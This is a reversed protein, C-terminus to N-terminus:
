VWKIRSEDYPWEGVDRPSSWDGESTHQEYHYLVRNVHEYTEVLELMEAAWTQDGYYDNPYSLQTFLRRRIPCKATVGRRVGEWSPTFGDYLFSEQFTGDLTYLIRYGHFDFRLRPTLTDAFDLTVTDDDDLLCVWEGTAHQAMWDAKDGQLGDGGCVLIEVPSPTRTLTWLMRSLLSERGPVTPIMVSLM